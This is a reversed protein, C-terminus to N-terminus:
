RRQPDAGALRAPRRGGPCPIVPPGKQAVYRCAIGLRARRQAYLQRAGVTALASLDSSALVAATNQVVRLGWEQKGALDTLLSLLEDRREELMRTVGEAARYVTGFSMPILAPAAMVRATVAAEHQVAYPALQSLDSLLENLPAEDFRSASVESVAAALPGARVTFVASDGVGAISPPILHDNEVDAAPVIAYVYLPSSQPADNV